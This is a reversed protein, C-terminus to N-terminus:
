ARMTEKYRLYDRFLRWAKWYGTPRIGLRLQARHLQFLILWHRYLDRYARWMGFSPDYVHAPEGLVGNLEMIKFKGQKLAEVSQCKLDFRGYLVGPIQQCIPEFAQIMAADILDNGNIFQTGRVHNGIPELLVHEGAIPIKEMLAPQEQEFRPIQFASRPAQAMLARVNQVGDGNVSLFSKVCVSTIGFSPTQQKGAPFRHFLVSLEMPELLMEQLIFRVPFRQLHQVLDPFSEIKQVLFGREGIDPKAVLPFGLQQASLQTALSAEGWGPEVVLTNPLLYKPLLDLIASKSEGMAGAMPIAPNVNTFFFLHRARLAFWAFFGYVPINALWMPYFEWVTWKIWWYKKFM